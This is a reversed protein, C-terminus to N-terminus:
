NNEKLRELEAELGKIKEWRSDAKEENYRNSRELKDNEVALKRFVETFLNFMKNLFIADEDYKYNDTYKILCGIIEDMSYPTETYFADIYKKFEQLMEANMKNEMGRLM